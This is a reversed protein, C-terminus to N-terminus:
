SNKISLSFYCVLLFVCSLLIQFMKKYRNKADILADNEAEFKDIHKMLNPIFDVVRSCM